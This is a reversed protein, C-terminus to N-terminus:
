NAGKLDKSLLFMGREKPISEEFPLQQEGIIEFGLNQYFRLPFGKKMTALWLTKMGGLLGISEIEGLVEKGYGKGTFQSLFYIKELYMPQQLPINKIQHFKILKVIGIYASGFRVLYHLNKEDKTEKAIIAHTFSTSIYPTPDGEPWLHLYHDRYAQEGVRCYLDHTEAQLPELQVRSIKDREIEKDM